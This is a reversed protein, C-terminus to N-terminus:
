QGSSSSQNQTHYNPNSPQGQVQTAQDTHTQLTNRKQYYKQPQLVNGRFDQKAFSEKTADKTRM